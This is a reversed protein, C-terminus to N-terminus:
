SLSSVSATSASTAPFGERTTLTPQAFAVVGDAERAAQRADLDDGVVGIRAGLLQARQACLEIAHREGHSTGARRVFERRKRAGFLAQCDHEVAFTELPFQKEGRRIRKAVGGDQDLAVVGNVWADGIADPLGEGSRVINRADRLPACVM